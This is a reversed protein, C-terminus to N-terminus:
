LRNYRRVMARVAQAIALAVALSVFMGMTAAVLLDSWIRRAVLSWGVAYASWLAIIAVTTPVFSRNARACLCALAVAFLVLLLGSVLSEYHIPGPIMPRVYRSAAGVILGTFIAALILWRPVTDAARQSAVRQQPSGPSAYPNQPRDSM